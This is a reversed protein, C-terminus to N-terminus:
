ITQIKKDLYIVWRKGKGPITELQPQYSGHQYTKDINYFNFFSKISITYNCTIKLPNTKNAEKTFEFVIAKKSPCYSLIVFKKIDVQRRFGANFSITVGKNISITPSSVRHKVTVFTKLDSWDNNKM